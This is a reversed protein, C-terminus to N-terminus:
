RINERFWDADERSYVGQNALRYLLYENSGKPQTLLANAMAHVAHDRLFNDTSIRAIGFPSFFGIISAKQMAEEFIFDGDAESYGLVRLLFTTFEHTTVQRNPAFLTREENVGVTIGISYGFAVYHNGWGPVDTFRNDGTFAIAENQLGMLRIVLALAELRTPPRNLEFVPNGDADTGTGVFLGLRFLADAVSVEDENPLPTPTPSPVTPPQAPSTGFNPRSPSWNPISPDTPEAPDTPETPETQQDIVTVTVSAIHNGDQTTVAITAIGPSIATIRGGSSVSVISTNSSAWTVNRNTANTPTITAALQFTEGVPLAGRANGMISIDTVNFTTLSIRELHNTTLTLNNGIHVSELIVDDTFHYLTQFPNLLVFPYSEIYSARLFIVMDDGIEIPAEETNVLWENDQRGGIQMIEFIEGPTTDGQFSEIVRARYVTYIMYPDIGEPPISLWNNLREVREDLIEARVVDTAHSALHEISDYAFYSASIWSIELDENEANFVAPVGPRQPVGRIPPHVVVPPFGPYLMNVSEIDFATPGLVWAESSPHNMVSESTQQFGGFPHYLGLAHGLEHAFISTFAEYYADEAVSRIRNYHMTIIFRDVVSGFSLDLPRYYAEASGNWYNVVVLNDSNSDEEFVAPTMSINWNYMATNMAELESDTAHKTGLIQGLSGEVLIGGFRFRIDPSPPRLGSHRDRADWRAWFTVVGSENPIISGSEPLRSGGLWSPTDYWGLISIPTREGTNRNFFLLVDKTPTSLQELSVSSGPELSHHLYERKCCGCFHNSYEASFFGENPHLRLVMHNVFIRTTRHHGDPLIFTLRFIGEQQPTVPISIQHGQYYGSEDFVPTAVLERNRHFYLANDTCVIFSSIVDSSNLTFSDLDDPWFFRANVTTEEGVQAGFTDYLVEWPL